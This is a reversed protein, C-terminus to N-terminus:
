YQNAMAKGIKTLTPSNTVVLHASILRWLTGMLLVGLFTGGIVLVGFHTHM